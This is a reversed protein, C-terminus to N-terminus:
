SPLIVEYIADLHSVFWEPYPELGLVGRNTRNWDYGPGHDALQSKSLHPHAESWLNLLDENHQHGYSRLGWYPPSTVVCDVSEPALRRALDFADGVSVAPLPQGLAHLPPAAVNEWESEATSRM